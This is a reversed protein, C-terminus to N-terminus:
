KKTLKLEFQSRTGTVTGDPNAKLAVTVNKCGALVESFQLLFQVSSDSSTVVKMPVERGACANTRDRTATQWTGGHSTVNLQAEYSRNDTQWTANWSGLFPAPVQAFSPSMAAVCALPALIARAVQARSAISSSPTQM